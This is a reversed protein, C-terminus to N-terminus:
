AVLQHLVQIEVGVAAAVRVLPIRMPVITATPFRNTVALPLKLGREVPIAVDDGVQEDVSGVLLEVAQEPKDALVLKM